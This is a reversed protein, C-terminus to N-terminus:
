LAEVQTKCYKSSRHIYRCELLVWPQLQENLLRDLLGTYHVVQVICDGSILSKPQQDLQCCVGSLNNIPKGDAASSSLVM